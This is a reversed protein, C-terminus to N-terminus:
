LVYKLNHDKTTIYRKNRTNYPYQPQYNPDFASLNNKALIVKNFIYQEYVTLLKLSKFQEEPPENFRLNM